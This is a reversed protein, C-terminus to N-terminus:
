KSSHRHVFKILERHKLMKHGYETPIYGVGKCHSCKAGEVWEKGNGECHFCGKGYCTSCIQKYDRLKGNGSCEVCRVDLTRM